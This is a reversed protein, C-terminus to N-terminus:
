EEPKKAAQLYAFLDRLEDPKFQKLVNNPMLSTPSEQLKDIEDHAIETKQGKSDILVM